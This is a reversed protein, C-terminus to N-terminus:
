GEEVDYQVEAGCDPCILIVEERDSAWAGRVMQKCGPCWDWSLLDTISAHAQGRIGLNAVYRSANYLNKTFHRTEDDVVRGDEEFVDKTTVVYRYKDM